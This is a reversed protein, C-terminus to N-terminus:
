QKGLNGKWTMVTEEAPDHQEVTISDTSIAARPISITSINAHGKRLLERTEEPGCNEPTASRSGSSCCTKNAGLSENM